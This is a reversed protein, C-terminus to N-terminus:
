WRGARWGCRFICPKMRSAGGRRTKGSRAQDFEALAYYLEILARELHKEM